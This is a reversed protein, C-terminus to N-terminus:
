ARKRGRWATTTLPDPAVRAAPVPAPVLTPRRAGTSARESGGTAGATTAGADDLDAVRRAGLALGTIIFLHPYTVGGLFIASLAYGVLGLNLAAPWTDAMSYRQPDSRIRRATRQNDALTSFIITLLVILGIYGYEGIIKFYVSHASIWRNAAWGELNNPRYFRGYASSFNGAGVGLPYDLGMRAAAKWARIRGQASGDDEYNEISNMREFYSAPAFAAVSALLLVFAAVGLVKRKSLFAWYYVLAGALAISGGRSQTAVIAFIGSLSGVAGLLRFVLPHPGVVLYVPAFLLTALAWSLDNGDGMFYSARFRVLRTGANFNDLNRAVVILIALTAIVSLWRARSPRDVLYLSILFLGFYDCMFRLTEPVYSRVVAWLVSAATWAILLAFLKNQRYETFANAGVRKLVLLSSGWALITSLRSQQLGPIFGALGGYEILIVALFAGFLMSTGALLGTQGVTDARGNGTSVGPFAITASSM